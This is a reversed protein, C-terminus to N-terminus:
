FIEKHVNYTCYTDYVYLLMCLRGYSHLLDTWLSIYCCCPNAKCRLSTFRLVVHAACTHAHRCVHQCTCVANQCISGCSAASCTLFPQQLVTAPCDWLATCDHVAESLCMSTLKLACIACMSCCPKTSADGLDQLGWPLCSTDSETQSCTSSHLSSDATSTVAASSHISSPQCLVLCLLTISILGTGICLFAPTHLHHTM